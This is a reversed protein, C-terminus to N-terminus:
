IALILKLLLVTVIGPVGAVCAIGSLANLGLSVGTFMGTVNVAALASAGQLLGGLLSRVPRGTKIAGILVAVGVGAAVCWLLITVGVNDVM